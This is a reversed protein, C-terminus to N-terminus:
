ILNQYVPYESLTKVSWLKGGTVTRHCRGTGRFFLWYLRKTDWIRSHRSMKMPNM